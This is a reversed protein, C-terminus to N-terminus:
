EPRVSMWCPTRAMVLMPEKPEPGTLMLLPASSLMFRVPVNFKGFSSM